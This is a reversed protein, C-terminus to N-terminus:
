NERGPYVASKFPWSEKIWKKVTSFLVPDLGKKYASDSVWMYVEAEAGSQEGPLIYLCGVCKFEDLTVVTYTFSSRKNFEAQHWGLDVIDDTLTMERYPWGEGFVSHQRAYGFTQHLHDYSTMVAEYDKFADHITLKRIRFNDTELIEPVDFEASVLAGM